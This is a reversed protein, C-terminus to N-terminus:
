GPGDISREDVYSPEYILTWYTDCSWCHLRSYIKAPPFPKNRGMDVPQVSDPKHCTPCLPEGGENTPSWDEVKEGAITPM